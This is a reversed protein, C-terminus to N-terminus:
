HRAIAVFILTRDTTMKAIPAFPSKMPRKIILAMSKSTDKQLLDPRLSNLAVM